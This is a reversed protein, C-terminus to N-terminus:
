LYNPGTWSFSKHMEKDFISGRSHKAPARWTAAKLIDGKSMPLGCHTGDVKAVFGWVRNGEVVKIFKRGPNLSLDLKKDTDHGNWEEYAYQINELLKDMAEDFSLGNTESFGTTQLSDLYSKEEVPKSVKPKIGNIM